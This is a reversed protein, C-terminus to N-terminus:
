TEEVRTVVERLAGIERDCQFRAYGEGGGRKQNARPVDSGPVGEIVPLYRCGHGRGQDGAQMAPDHQDQAYGTGNATGTHRIRPWPLTGQVPVPRKESEARAM